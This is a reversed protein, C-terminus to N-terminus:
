LLPHGPNLTLAQAKSPGVLYIHASWHSPSCLHEIVAVQGGAWRRLTTMFNLNLCLALPICLEATRTLTLNGDHNEPSCISRYTTQCITLATHVWKGHPSGRKGESQCCAEAMKKEWCSIWPFSPDKPAKDRLRVVLPLPPFTEAFLKIGALVLKM